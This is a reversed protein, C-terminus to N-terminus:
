VPLCVSVCLLGHYCVCCTMHVCVRLVCVLVCVRARVFAVVRACVCVRVRSLGTVPDYAIKCSVIPGFQQFTVFLESHDTTEPLNKVFINGVNSRRRSPDRQSPAIRIRKGNLETFNLDRLAAAATPILCSVPCAHHLLLLSHSTLFVWFLM